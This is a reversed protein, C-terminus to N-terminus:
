KVRNWCLLQMYNDACGMDSSLLEFPFAGMTREYQVAFMGIMGIDEEESHLEAIAHPCCTTKM